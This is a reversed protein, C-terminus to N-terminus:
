GLPTLNGRNLQILSVRGVIPMISQDLNLYNEAHKHPKLLQEDLVPGSAFSQVSGAAAIVAHAILDHAALLQLMNQYRDRPIKLSLIMYVASPFIFRLLTM